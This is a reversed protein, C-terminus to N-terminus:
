ASGRLQYEPFINAHTHGSTIPNENSSTSPEIHSSHSVSFRWMGDMRSMLTLVYIFYLYPLVFPCIHFSFDHFISVNFFHPIRLYLRASIPLCCSHLLNHADPCVQMENRTGELVVNWILYTSAIESTGGRMMSIAM